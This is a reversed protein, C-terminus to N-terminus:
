GNFRGGEIEGLHAMAKEIAAEVRGILEADGGHELLVDRQLRGLEMLHAGVSTQARLRELREELLSLAVVIDQKRRVGNVAGPRAEPAVRLRDHPRVGAEHLTDTPHLRRGTGDPRVHVVLAQRPGAKDPPFFDDSYQSLVGKAIDKVTTSALVEELDFV